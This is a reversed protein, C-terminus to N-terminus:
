TVAAGSTASPPADDFAGFNVAEEKIIDRVKTVAGPEKLTANAIQKTAQDCGVSLGLVAFLLLLRNLLTM